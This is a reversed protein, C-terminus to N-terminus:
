QSWHVPLGDFWAATSAQQFAEAIEHIQSADIVVCADGVQLVSQPQILFKTLRVSDRLHMGTQAACKGREGLAPVQRLRHVMVTTSLCDQRVTWRARSKAAYIGAQRLDGNPIHPNM